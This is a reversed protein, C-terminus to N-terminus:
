SARWSCRLHNLHWLASQPCGTPPLSPADYVGLEFPSGTGCRGPDCALYPDSQDYADGECSRVHLPAEVPETRM